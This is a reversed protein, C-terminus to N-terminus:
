PSTFSGCARNWIDVMESLHQFASEPVSWNPIAGPHPYKVYSVGHTAVMRHLIFSYFSNEAINEPWAWLMLFQSGACAAYRPDDSLSSSPGDHFQGLQDPCSQNGPCANPEPSPDEQGIPETGLPAKDSASPEASSPSPPPEPPSTAPPAETPASESPWAAPPAETPASESPSTASPAEAPTSESPATVAHPTVVTPTATHPVVLDAAAGGPAVTVALAFAMAAIGKVAGRSGLRM